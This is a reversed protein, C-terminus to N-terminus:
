RGPERGPIAKIESVSFWHGRRSNAITSCFQAAARLSPVGCLHRSARWFPRELCGEPTGWFGKLISKGRPAAEPEDGRVGEARPRKRRADAAVPLWNM